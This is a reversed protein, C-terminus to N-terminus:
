PKAYVVQVGIPDVTDKCNVVESFYAYLGNDITPSTISSDTFARITSAAGTSSVQAMVVYGDFGDTTTSTALRKRLLYATADFDADNDRVSLRVATVAAGQPLNVSAVAGNTFNTTGRFERGDDPIVSDAPCASSYHTTGGSHHVFVAADLSLTASGGGAVPGGLLQALLVAAVVAGPAVTRLAPLSIGRM